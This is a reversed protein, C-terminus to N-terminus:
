DSTARIWGSKTILFLLAAMLYFMMFGLHSIDIFLTFNPSFVVHPLNKLVRF